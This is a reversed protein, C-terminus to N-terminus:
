SALVTKAIDSLQLAVIKEIEKNTPQFKINGHNAIPIGDILVALQDSGDTIEKIKSVKMDGRAKVKEAEPKNYIHQNAIEWIKKNQGSKLLDLICYISLEAPNRKDMFVNYKLKKRETSYKKNSLSNIYRTTIEDDSAPFEKTAM